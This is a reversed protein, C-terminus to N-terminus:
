ILPNQLEQAIIIKKSKHAFFYKKTYKSLFGINIRKSDTTGVLINKKGLSRIAALGNKTGADTILISM